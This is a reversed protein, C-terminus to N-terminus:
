PQIVVGLLDHIIRFDILRDVLRDSRERTSGRKLVLNYRVCLIDVYKTITTSNTCVTPRRDFVDGFIPACKVIGRDNGVCLVFFVSPRM